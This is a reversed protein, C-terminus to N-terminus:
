GVNQDYNNENVGVVQKIDSDVMMKVLAKFDTKPLWGLKTRAKTNDGLLNDIENPRYFKEDIKIIVKGNEDKGVEDLGQGEWKLTLGLYKAVEEIFERVSYSKGTAIVYDEPTEQQLMLWMAEVYDGAFGWDRKVDLNGMTMVDQKGFKLKTLSHSVKKTVFHKGRRPSEHNFLIGSCIFFGKERFPVVVENHAKLKAEGYPSFQVPAFVTQESQPFDANGYMVSTSPQFIKVKPNRKFAETALRELGRFNIDVTEDPCAFSVGIHSQAALNYIEDPQAVELANILTPLDRLNGYILKIKGAEYLDEIRMFPDTSVRRLFGYVEYGKDSLFEALYSGDQGTVGTIFARKM